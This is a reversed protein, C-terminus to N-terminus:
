SVRPIAKAQRVPKPSIGLTPQPRQASREVTGICFFSLEGHGNWNVLVKGKLCLQNILRREHHKLVEEPLIHFNRFTWLLRLREFFSPQLYRVGWDTEVALVGHFIKDKLM